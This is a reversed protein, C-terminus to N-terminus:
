LKDKIRHAYCVAAIIIATAVSFQYFYVVEIWMLMLLRVMFLAFFISAASPSRIAWGMCVWAASIFILTQLATGLVGIEVTNSLLTNHFHFGSRGTIGFNAWLQEALPQGPVWFAQFGVGLLPREAIQGLAVMWLDTRGTLTIDKGTLDLFMLALKDSISSLVVVFAAVLVTTLAIAVLRMYPTLRQLLMIVGFFLIVCLTSVLAGSSQGMILLMAGLLMSVLAPLRWRVSLRRDTLVALSVIILVSSADSLANKSAYIGLYGMGDPRARGVLLSALGAMTSTLFIIKVFTMPALRYGVTVAIIVTLLLQIGHRLTLETYDSWAFSMVCWLAVLVIMWERRLAALAEGPRIAILVMGAIIFLLAGISGLTALFALGFIAVFGTIANPSYSLTWHRSQRHAPRRATIAGGAPMMEVM